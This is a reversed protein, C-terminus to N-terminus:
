EVPRQSRKFMQIQSFRPARESELGRTKFGQFGGDRSGQFRQIISVDVEKFAGSMMPFGSGRSIRFGTSRKYGNLGNLGQSGDARPDKPIRPGKFKNLDRNM